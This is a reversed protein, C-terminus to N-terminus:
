KTKLIGLEVAINVPISNNVWLEETHDPFRQDVLRIADIAGEMTAPYSRGPLTEKIGLINDEPWEPNREWGHVWISRGQENWSYHGGIIDGICVFAMKDPRYRVYAQYGEGRSAIGDLIRKALAEEQLLSMAMSEHAKEIREPTMPSDLELPQRGWPSPTPRKNM